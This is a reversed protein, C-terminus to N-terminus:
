RWLLKLRGIYIVNLIQLISRIIQVRSVGALSFKTKKCTTPYLDNGARTVLSDYTPTLLRCRSEPTSCALRSQFMWTSTWPRGSDACMIGAAADLPARSYSVALWQGLWCQDTSVGRRSASNVVFFPTLLCASWRDWKGKQVRVNERRPRTRLEFRARAWFNVRHDRRGRRRWPRGTEYSHASYCVAAIANKHFPFIAM